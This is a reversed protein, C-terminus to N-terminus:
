IVETVGGAPVKVRQPTASTDPEHEDEYEPQLSDPDVDRRKLERERERRERKEQKSEHVKREAITGLGNVVTNVSRPNGSYIIAGVGNMTADLSATSNVRVSGVGAVTVKADNAVLKSFDVYGAGAMFITLEDLKGNAMLHAAGEIRISSAGGNFGTLRVDNGGDLKLSQLSPVTIRLLLRQAGSAMIWDRRKNKIYLTGQRVEAETRQLVVDRGELTLSAPSGVVIEIRGDGDMDVANFDHVERAESRVPGMDFHDDECASLLVALLLLSATKLFTM